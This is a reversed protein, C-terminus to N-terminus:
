LEMPIKFHARMIRDRHALLIPDVAAVVAPPTNEFMPRISPDLPCEEPPQIVALNSFAAWYFDVATVADGVFYASGRAEQAKLLGTLHELLAVTRPTALAGDTDNYGYKHAFSASGPNVEDALMAPRVMDLRRNWGFGIEGCIEHSLGFVQVRAAPDAPVLPIEPALRELLILIDNWRNIPPEDNWAVVPASNVGAWAVLEPNDAMAQQPAALYELGKFEMMAKAAQGWPSPFGRVLVLRLGSAAIAQKLDIYEM